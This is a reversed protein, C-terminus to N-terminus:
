FHPEIALFFGEEGWWSTGTRMSEFAHCLNNIFQLEIFQHFKFHLYMLSTHKGGLGDTLATFGGDEGPAPVFM